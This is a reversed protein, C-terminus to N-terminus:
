RKIMPCCARARECLTKTRIRGRRVGCLNQSHCCHVGALLISHFANIRIRTANKRNCSFTSWNGSSGCTMLDDASASNYGTQCRITYTAGYTTNSTYIPAANAILPVGCDVASLM